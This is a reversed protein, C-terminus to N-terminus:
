HRQDLQQYLALYDNVYRDRSLAQRAHAAASSGLAKRREDDQLLDDLATALLDANPSDVLVGGVGDRVVEPIGGVRAAVIPVGCAM